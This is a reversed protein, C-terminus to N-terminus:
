KVAVSRVGKKAIVERIMIKMEAQPIKGPKAKQHPNVAIQKGHLAHPQVDKKLKKGADGEQAFAGTSLTVAFLFAFPKVLKNM